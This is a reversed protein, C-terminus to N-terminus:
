RGNHRRQHIEVYKETLDCGWAVAEKRGFELTITFVMHRGVMAAKAGVLDATNEGTQVLLTESGNEGISLSLEDIAFEVGSCGAACVVRSWNPDEGYEKCATIHDCYTRSRKPTRRAARGKSGHVELMKTTGEGDAATQMALTQVTHNHVSIFARVVREEARSSAFCTTHWFILKGCSKLLAADGQKVATKLAEHLHEASVEVDTYIFSLMTGMNPAIMGSGNCIGAITFGERQVLAHKQVM